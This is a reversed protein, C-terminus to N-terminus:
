MEYQLMDDGDVPVVRSAQVEYSVREIENADVYKQIKVRGSVYIKAGKEIKEIPCIQAGEWAVVNHWTTEIVPNGGRDKYAYNTALTFKAMRRGATTLVRVNGVNGRLEIRNLQEM